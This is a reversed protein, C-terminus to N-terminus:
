GALLREWEEHWKGVQPQFDKLALDFAARSLDIERDLGLARVATEMDLAHTELLDLRQLREYQDQPITKLQQHLHFADQLNGGLEVMRAIQRARHEPIQDRFQGKLGAAAEAARLLKASWHLATLGDFHLMRAKPAAWSVLPEGRHRAPRRPTHIGPILRKGTRMMSKGHHHGLIGRNLFEKSNSFLYPAGGLARSVPARYVGEFLHRQPQGELFARERPPFVVYEVAEPLDALMLGIPLDCQLFEDADLHMLWPLKTRTYADFINMVQRPEIARPRRGQRERWYEETCVTLIVQPIQSLLAELSPQPADLYIHVESAGLAIHHAVFAVVLADPERCTAAVGWQASGREPHPAYIM